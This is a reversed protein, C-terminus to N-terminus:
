TKKVKVRHRKGVRIMAEVLSATLEEGVPKFEGTIVILKGNGFIRIPHSPHGNEIVCRPPFKKSTFAGILPLKLQDILYGGCLIGTLTHSPFSQVVISSTIDKPFNNFEKVVIDGVKYENEVIPREMLIVEKNEM